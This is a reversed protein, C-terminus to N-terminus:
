DADQSPRSDDIAFPGSLSCPGAVDAIGRFRRGATLFDGTAIPWPVFDTRDEDDELRAAIRAFTGAPFRAQM